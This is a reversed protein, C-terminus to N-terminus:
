PGDWAGVWAKGARIVNANTDAGQGPTRVCAVHTADESVACDRQDGYSGDLRPARLLRWRAHARVLLGAPTPVVVPKDGAFEVLPSAHALDPSLVVPEDEVIAELGNASWAIPLARSIAGRSGTCRNRLPPAVTLAVDHSDGAATSAFTARLPSAGDCTDYVDIWRTAGDPSVVASKWEPADEAASEDGADPDVRVAGTRTRVLLKGTPEFALAGWAPERGRAVDPVAALARVTRAIAPPAIAEIWKTAEAARSPTRSAPPSEARDLALAARLADGTTAYARVAALGVEELGRAAGCTIASTGAVAVIRPAGSEACAARWLARVRAVLPPVAPADKARAARAAALSALSSFSSETAALDRSLGAPRDLWAVVASVGEVSVRLAVDEIGDGDRDAGDADVNLVPAGPPDAIVAALKIRAVEGGRAIAVWRMPGNAHAAPTCTRGLEAFVTSKGVLSLRAAWACGADRVLSEPPAFTAALKGARYFLLQGPDGADVGRAIAFAESAGDGDFDRVVAMAFTQGEPAELTVGDITWKALGEPAMTAAQGTFPSAGAEARASASSTSPASDPTEATSAGSEISYPVYPSDNCGRCGQAATAISLAVAARRSDM